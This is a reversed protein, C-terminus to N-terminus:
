MLIDICLLGVLLYNILTLEDKKAPLRGYQNPDPNGPLLALMIRGGPLLSLPVTWWGGIGVDHGRRVILGILPVVHLLVVLINCLTILTISTPIQAISDTNRAKIAKQLAVPLKNFAIYLVLFGILQLILYVLLFSCYEKRNARGTFTAYRKRLTNEYNDLLSMMNSKTLNLNITTKAQGRIYCNKSLICQKISYQQQKDVSHLCKLAM